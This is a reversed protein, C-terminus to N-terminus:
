GPNGRPSREELPEGGRSVGGRRRPDFALSRVVRLSEPPGPWHEALLAPGGGRLVVRLVLALLIADDLQGAVPIVDPVLDFPLALYVALVALAAKRWGAVRPDRLLRSVLVVCDPVFGAWARAQRRRGAILLGIVFAAYAGIAVLAAILM